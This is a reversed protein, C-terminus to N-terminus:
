FKRGLRLSNRKMLKQTMRQSATLKSLKDKRIQRAKSKEPDLKIYKITM